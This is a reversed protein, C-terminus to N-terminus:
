ADQSRMRMAARIEAVIGKIDSHLRPATVHLVIWGLNMLANLRRRDRHMHEASGVHVAGDYEVAIRYEEYALDVRAVFSGQKDRVVYQVAPYPLGALVLRVRLRSEQPSESRADALMLARTFRRFGSRRPRELALLRLHGVLETGSVVGAALMGDIWTVAVVTDHWAALQFCTAIPATVAVGNVLRRENDALAGRHVIVGAYTGMSSTGPVMVEVPDDAGGIRVGYVQAASRGAIVADPPLVFDAAAACRASHTVTISSDVYVGRFLRRWARSHLQRESLLGAEVADRGRFVQGRLAAPRYPRRGVRCYRPAARTAAGGGTGARHIVRM